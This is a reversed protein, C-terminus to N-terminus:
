WAGGYSADHRYETNKKFFKIEMAANSSHLVRNVMTGEDFNYGYFVSHYIGNVVEEELDLYIYLQGDEYFVAGRNVVRKLKDPCQIISEDYEGTVVDERYVRIRDEEELMGYCLVQGDSVFFDAADDSIKKSSLRKQEMDYTYMRARERQDESHKNYVNIMLYLQNNVYAGNILYHYNINDPIVFEDVEITYDQTNIKTIHFKNEHQMVVIVGEEYKQIIEPVFDKESSEESIMTVTEGQIFAVHLGYPERYWDYFVLVEMGDFNRHEMYQGLKREMGIYDEVSLYNYLAELSEMNVVQACGMHMDRELPIVKDGDIAFSDIEYGKMGISFPYFVVDRSLDTTSEVEILQFRDKRRQFERKIGLALLVVILVFICGLVVKTRKRMIWMSRGRFIRRAIGCLNKGHDVMRRMM